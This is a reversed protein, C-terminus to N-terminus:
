PPIVHSPATRGNSREDATSQFIITEDDDYYIANNNALVYIHFSITVTNALGDLTSFIAATGYIYIYIDIYIFTHIQIVSQCCTHKSSDTNMTGTRMYMLTTCKITFQGLSLPMTVYRYRALTITYCKNNNNNNNHVNTLAGYILMHHDFSSHLLPHDEKTTVRGLISVVM